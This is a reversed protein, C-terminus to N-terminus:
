ATVGLVAPKLVTSKPFILTVPFIIVMISISMPPEGPEVAPPMFVVVTAISTNEAIDTKLLLSSTSHKSLRTASAAIFFAEAISKIYRTRKREPPMTMLSISPSEKIGQRKSAEDAIPVTPSESPIVGVSPEIDLAIRIERINKPRTPPSVMIKAVTEATFRFM